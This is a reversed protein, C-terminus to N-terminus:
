LRPAERGPRCKEATVIAEVRAAAEELRDSQNVVVYDFQPLAALERQATALRLELQPPSDTGRQRLREELEAWSPPALFVAIAQPVVEKIHSAGQIDTRVLVDQGRALAQQVQEKPVGYYHGYVLAHELLNDAAALALFRDHELFIYDVGDVENPRKPRTTATVVFHFPTGRAKLCALLADKGVGSPGSLVVLLPPSDPLGEGVEVEEEGQPILRTRVRRDSEVRGAIAEPGIATLVIHGSDMVLVAKTRRGMTMDVAKGEERGRQMLRRIPESNPSAVAVIRDAALFNGLGVHVLKAAM